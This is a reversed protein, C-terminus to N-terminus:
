FHNRMALHAETVHEVRNRCYLHSSVSASHALTSYNAGKPTPMRREPVRCATFLSMNGLSLAHPAQPCGPWAKIEQWVLIGLTILM